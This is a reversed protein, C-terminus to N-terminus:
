VTFEGCLCRLYRMFLHPHLTLNHAQFSFEVPDARLIIERFPRLQPSLMVLSYHFKLVNTRM